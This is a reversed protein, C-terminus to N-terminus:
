PAPSAVRSGIFTQTMPSAPEIGCGTITGTATLNLAGDAALNLSVATYAITVGPHRCNPVTATCTLTVAPGGPWSAIKGDGIVRVMGFGDVCMGYVFAEAPGLRADDLVIKLTTAFSVPAAPDTSQLSSQGAWSGALARDLMPGTEGGCAMLGLALLALRRTM